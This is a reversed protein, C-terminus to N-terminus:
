PYVYWQAPRGHWRTAGYRFSRRPISSPSAPTRAGRGSCGLRAWLAHSSPCHRRRTRCCCMTLISYVVRVPISTSVLIIMFIIMMWTSRTMKRKTMQFAATLLYPQSRPWHRQHSEGDEEREDDFRDAGGFNFGEEALIHHHHHHGDLDQGELLHLPNDMDALEDLDQVGDDYDQGDEDEEGDDDDDTEDEWGPAGDDGLPNGEDDVIEIRDELEAELQELADEDDEDEDDDESLEEDDDMDDDEDDDEDDDDEMIVEVGVPHGPLGEIEGMEGLEEDEDSVDEEGDQSMEDGYDLEEPYEDEYDM